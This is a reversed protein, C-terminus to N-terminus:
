GEPPPSGQSSPEAAAPVGQALNNHFQAHLALQAQGIAQTAQQQQAVAQMAALHSSFQAQAQAAPMPLSGPLLGPFSPSAGLVPSGGGFPSGGALGPVHAPFLGHAPDPEAPGAASGYARLNANELSLKELYALTDDLVEVTNRHRLSM